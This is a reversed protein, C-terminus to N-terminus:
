GACCAGPSLICQAWLVLGPSGSNGPMGAEQPGILTGKWVFLGGPDHAGTRHVSLSGPRKLASAEHRNQTLGRVRGLKMKGM